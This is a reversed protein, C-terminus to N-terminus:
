GAGFREGLRELILEMAPDRTAGTTTAPKLTSAFGNQIAPLLPLLSAIWRGEVGSKRQERRARRNM